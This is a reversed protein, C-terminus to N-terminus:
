IVHRVAWETGQLLKFLAYIVAIMGFSLLAYKWEDLKM